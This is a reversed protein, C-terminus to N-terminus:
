RWHMKALAHHVRRATRWFLSPQLVCYSTLCVCWVMARPPQQRTHGPANKEPSVVDILTDIVPQVPAPHDNRGAKRLKHRASNGAKSATRKGAAPGHLQRGQMRERTAARRTNRTQCTPAHKAQTSPMATRGQTAAARAHRWVLVTVSSNRSLGYGNRSISGYVTRFRRMDGTHAGRRPTWRVWLRATLWFRCKRAWDGPENRPATAATQILTFKANRFIQRALCRPNAKM